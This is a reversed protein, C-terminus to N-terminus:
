KRVHIYNVGVFNCIFELVGIIKKFKKFMKYWLQEIQRNKPRM